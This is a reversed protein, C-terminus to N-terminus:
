YVVALLLSLVFVCCLAVPKIGKFSFMIYLIILSLHECMTLKLALVLIM